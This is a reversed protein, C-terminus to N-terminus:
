RDVIKTLMEVTMPQKIYLHVRYLLIHYLKDTVRPLENTEVPDYVSLISWWSIVSIDNFTAKFRM